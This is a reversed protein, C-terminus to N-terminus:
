HIISDPRPVKRRVPKASDDTYSYSFKVIRVRIDDDRKETGAAVRIFKSFGNAAKGHLATFLNHEVEFYQLANERINAPVLNNSDTYKVLGLRFSVIGDAFQIYQDGADSFKTDEFDILCCPWTVPPRIEYNELQGLDQEIYRFVPAGTAIMQIMSQYLNAEPSLLM